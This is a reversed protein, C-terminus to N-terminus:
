DPLGVMSGCNVPLYYIAGEVFALLFCLVALLDFKQGAGLTEMVFHFKFSFLYFDIMVQVIAKM